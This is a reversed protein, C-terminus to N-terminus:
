EALGFRLEGYTREAIRQMADLDAEQNARQSHGPGHAQSPQGRFAAALEFSEMWFLVQEKTM